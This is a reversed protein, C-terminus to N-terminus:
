IIGIGRESACGVMDRFERNFSYGIVDFLHLIGGWTYADNIWTKNKIVGITSNEGCYCRYCAGLPIHNCSYAQSFSCQWNPM